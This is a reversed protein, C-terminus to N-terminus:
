LSKQSRIMLALGIGLLALGTFLMPAPMLAMSCSEGTFYPMMIWLSIASAFIGVGTLILGTSRRLKRATDNTPKQLGILAILFPLTLSATSIILIQFTNRDM